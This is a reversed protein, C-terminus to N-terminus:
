EAATWAPDSDHFANKKPALSAAPDIVTSLGGSESHGIASDTRIKPSDDHLM